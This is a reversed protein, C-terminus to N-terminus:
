CPLSFICVPEVIDSYPDAELAARRVAADSERVHRRPEKGTKTITKKEKLVVPSSQKFIPPKQMETPAGPTQPPSQQSSSPAIMTSINKVLLSPHVNPPPVAIDVTPQSPESPTAAPETSPGLAINPTAESGSAM